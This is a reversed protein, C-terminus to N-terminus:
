ALRGVDADGAFRPVDMRLRQQEPADGYETPADGAAMADAPEGLGPALASISEGRAGSGGGDACVDLALRLPRAGDHGVPPPAAASRLSLGVVVARRLLAARARRLLASVRPADSLATTAGLSSFRRDASAAAAQSATFASAAAVPPPISASDRICM